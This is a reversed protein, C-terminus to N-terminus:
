GILGFRVAAAEGMAGSNGAVRSVGPTRRLSAVSMVQIGIFVVKLPAAIEPALGVVVLVRKPAALNDRV